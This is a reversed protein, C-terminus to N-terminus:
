IKQSKKIVKVTAELERLCSLYSIARYGAAQVHKYTVYNSLKFTRPSQNM